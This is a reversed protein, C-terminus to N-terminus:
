RCSPGDPGDGGGPPVQVIVRVKKEPYKAWSLYPTSMVISASFIVLAGAWWFKANRVSKM